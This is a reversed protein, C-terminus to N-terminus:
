GEDCGDGSDDIDLTAEGDEVIHPRVVRITVEVPEEERRINVRRRCNQEEPKSEFESSKEELPCSHELKVQQKTAEGYTTPTWVKKEIDKRLEEVEMMDGGVDEEAKDDCACGSHRHTEEKIKTKVLAKAYVRM